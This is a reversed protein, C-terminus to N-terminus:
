TAVRWPREAVVFLLGLGSGLALSVAVLVEPKALLWWVLGAFAGAILGLTIGGVKQRMMHQGFVGLLSGYAAGAAVAALLHRVSFAYFWLELVGIFAGALAGLIFRRGIEIVNPKVPMAVGENIKAKTNKQRRVIILLGLTFLLHTL